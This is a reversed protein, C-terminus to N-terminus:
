ADRLERMLDAVYGRTKEHRLRGNEFMGDGFVGGVHVQPQSLVNCGFPTLCHRLSFQSLLGGSAGATASLIAVPKKALPGPKFRSQWDLANKLVGSLNKNYEPTSIVVGDAARLQDVFLLLM